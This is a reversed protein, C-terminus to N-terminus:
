EAFSSQVPDEYAELDSAWCFHPKKEDGQLVAKGGEVRVYAFCDEKPANTVLDDLSIANHQRTWDVPAVLGGNTSSTFTNTATVVKEQDFDPGAAVLGRFLLDANIWSIIAWDTINADAKEMQAILAEMDTGAPDAEIPRYMLGIYDGELLEANGELYETDGYANPLMVPVDGMGQREMERELVLVSNQDMCTIVFDVGARKMATVEPGVGNALGYALGDNVYAAEMGEAEGWTDFTTKTGSVCDKSAQAIDFGLIGVKTAGADKVPWISRMAPCTICVTGVPTFIYDEGDAIDSQVASAYVPIGAEALDPFGDALIPSGIVAFHEKGDIIEAARAKNNAFEDDIVDLVLKRGHVGGQENRWDFYAQIGDAQCQLLCYGIPNAEGTSLLAIKIEDDTVGPVGEIPQMEGHPGEDAVAVEGDTEAEGEANTPAPTTDSEEEKSNGCAALLLLVVALLATLRTAASRRSRIAPM